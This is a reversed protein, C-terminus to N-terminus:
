GRASIGFTARRRPARAVQPLLRPSGRRAGCRGAGAASPGGRGVEPAQTSRGSRAPPPAGPPRFRGRPHHTDPTSLYFIHRWPGATGSRRVRHGRSCGTGPAAAPPLRSERSHRGRLSRAGFGRERAARSGARRPRRLPCPRAARPQPGAPAAARRRAPPQPAPAPAAGRLPDSAPAPAAPRRSGARRWPSPSGPLAGTPGHGGPADGRQWGQRLVAAAAGERGAVELVGLPQVTFVPAEEQADVGVASHVPDPLLAVRVTLEPGDWRWSRPSGSQKM